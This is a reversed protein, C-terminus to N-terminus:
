LIELRPHSHRIGGSHNGGRAVRLYRLEGVKSSALSALTLRTIALTFTALLNLTFRKRSPISMTRTDFRSYFVVSHLTLELRVEMFAVLKVPIGIDLLDKSPSHTTAEVFHNRAAPSPTSRNRHKGAPVVIAAEGIGAAPTATSSRYRRKRSTLPPDAPDSQAVLADRASTYYAVIEPNQRNKVTQSALEYRIRM